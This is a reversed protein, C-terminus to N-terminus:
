NSLLRCLASDDDALQKTISFHDNSAICTVDVSAGAADLRNAYNATMSKFGATELEGVALHTPCTPSIGTRMTDYRALTDPDFSVDDAIRTSGMAQLDYAGSVLLARNWPMAARRHHLAIAALHAGASHGVVVRNRYPKAALRQLAVSVDQVASAIAAPAIRYGVLAVDFGLRMLCPVAFVYDFRSGSRWAGGHILAILGSAEPREFLTISQREHDGFPEERSSLQTAAEASADRRWRIVAEFDPCHTRPNYNWDPDVGTM